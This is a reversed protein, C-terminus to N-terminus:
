TLRMPAADHMRAGAYRRVQDAIWIMPTRVREPSSPSIQSPLGVLVLFVGVFAVAGGVALAVKNGSM